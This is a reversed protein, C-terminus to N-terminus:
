ENPPDNKNSWGPRPRPPRRRAGVGLGGEDNPDPPLYWWQQRPPRGTLYDLLELMEPDARLERQNRLLVWLNIGTSPNDLGERVAITFVLALDWLAANVLHNKRERRADRMRALVPYIEKDPLSLSCIVREIFEVEDVGFSEDLTLVARSHYSHM